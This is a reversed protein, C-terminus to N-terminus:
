LSIFKVNPVHIQKLKWGKTSKNVQIWSNAVFIIQMLSFVLKDKKREIVLVMFTLTLRESQHLSNRKTSEHLKIIIHHPMNDQLGCITLLDPLTWVKQASRPEMVNCPRVYLTMHGCVMCILPSLAAFSFGSPGVCQTLFWFDKIHKFVWTILKHEGSPPNQYKIQCPKSTESQATTQKKKEGLSFILNQM